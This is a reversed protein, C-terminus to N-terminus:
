KERRIRKKGWLLSSISFIAEFPLTEKSLETRNSIFWMKTYLRSIRVYLEILLKRAHLGKARERERKEYLCKEPLWLLRAIAKFNYKRRATTLSHLLCSRDSHVLVLLRPHHNGTEREKPKKLSLRSQRNPPSLLLFSASIEKNLTAPIWILCM